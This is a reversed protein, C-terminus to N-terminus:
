IKLLVNRLQFKGKKVLYTLLIFIYYTQFYRELLAKIFGFTYLSRVSLEQISVSNMVLKMDREYCDKFCAIIASYPKYINQSKETPSTMLLYHVGRCNLNNEARFM